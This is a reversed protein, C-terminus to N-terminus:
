AAGPAPLSSAHAELSMAAGVRANTTALASARMGLNSDLLTKLPSKKTLGIATRRLSPPSRPNRSSSQRRGRALPRVKSQLFVPQPSSLHRSPGQRHRRWAAGCLRRDGSASAHDMPLFTRRKGPGRHRHIEAWDPEAPIAPLPGQRMSRRRNPPLASARRGLPQGSSLARPFSGLVTCPPIPQGVSVHAASVDKLCLSQRSCFLTCEM